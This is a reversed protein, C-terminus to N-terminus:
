KRIELNKLSQATSWLERNLTKLQIKLLIVEAGRILWEKLSM